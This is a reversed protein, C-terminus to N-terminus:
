KRRMHKKALKLLSDKENEVQGSIVAKLLYSLTEGIERGKPYGLSILDNGGIKLDSVSICAGSDRLEKIIKESEDLYEFQHFYEPAQASLDARRVNVLTLGGEFGVKSLYKHLSKKTASPRTDHYKILFCVKQVTDRDAKLRLLIRRAMDESVDPHGYFHGIGKEDVTFAAPKAVDHLLMCLRVNVDPVSAAVSRAIHEYVTYIHHPNRQEFGVCASLEPILTCIAESYDTLIRLVDRGLLLKKLETFVREGSVEKLLPLCEFLAKKTCAEIEFGLCSSFRLARLMRLADESFRRTPDGVCKIIGRKLDDRGGFPDIIEGELTMAIANMTFDRRALDEEINKCYEVSDPRRCDTYGSEKRCCTIEVNREGSSVNLTGFRIGTDFTPYDSFAEKLEEPLCEAAIDYDEPVKGSIMDRVAGGVVFAPIGHQRLQLILKEIDKPFM